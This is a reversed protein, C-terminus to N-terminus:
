FNTPLEVINLKYSNNSLKCEKFTVNHSNSLADKVKNRTQESSKCGFIISKLAQPKYFVKNESLPYKFIRHEKEYKWGDFKHSILRRILEKSDDLFSLQPYDKVYQIPNPIFFTMPDQLCDFELCVGEHSKSYHSWMLISDNVKSFCCVRVVKNFEKLVQELVQNFWGDKESLEKAKISIENMNKPFGMKENLKWFYLFVEEYTYSVNISVRGDFPDNFQQWSSFFLYNDKLEELTNENIPRYRYLFRSVNGRKISEAFIKEIEMKYQM